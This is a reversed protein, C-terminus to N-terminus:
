IRGRLRPDLADRLGDGLLNFALVLLVIAAGPVISLMPNTLLYQQGSNIMAGWTATPPNIGIGLFSLSAEALIAFGLDLTIVVFLPPFTNPVLHRFMVRVHSAGIVNAAMVYDNEKVSLIEGCMLRCYTPMFGIGLAIYVKLIGGGLMVAIALMLVLPPLSMLADMFRMILTGIWGEFYGAILGLFMGIIGAISVVVMGVTVAIRSGYIIRSLVDRGLEDTGLIHKASPPQIMERLSIKNPDYPALEPAFIAAFIASIIVITGFTVVWRSFMVKLFRQFESIRKIHGQEKLTGFNAESM